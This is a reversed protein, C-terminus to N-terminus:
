RLHWLRPAILDDAAAPGWTGALYSRTPPPDSLIPQIVEWARDVSDGRAFLTHDGDLADHILREYAEAPKTAFSDGYSFDMMVSQVDIEPGPVKALFKFTIGEDPQILMTLTNPALDDIGIGKFFTVPAHRFVITVETTRRPLSKGTRLYFPVGAWRWNDLHLRMAAYTETNSDRAVGEEDHYGPIDGNRAYQGRVVNECTVPVMAAFAKMKEDRVAEPHFSVPPEMTLLSLVQLAHNQLIDRVAGTEEYFSGRGEIGISEAVTFQVHEVADRNWVREFVANGFRFVLINQVTEKGLYHDIRFVQKEDFISLLLRELERSSALDHGFPKEIVIQTGAVLDEKALALVNEEFASPPVSLYVLRNPQACLKKVGTFGEERGSVYSLRGAFSAFAADDLPTRSYKRVATAAEDRFANGTAPSRAYGIINCNKPLLGRVDLNYLAPLLKRQALDGTAGVIVIDQDAPQALSV